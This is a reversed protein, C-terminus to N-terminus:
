GGGQGLGPGVGAAQLGRSLSTVLASYSASSATVRVPGLDSPLAIKNRLHFGCGALTTTLVLALLFRTM